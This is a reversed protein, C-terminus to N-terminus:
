YNPLKDRRVSQVKLLKRENQKRQKGRVLFCLRITLRYLSDGAMDVLVASVFAITVGDGDNLM